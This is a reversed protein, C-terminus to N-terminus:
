VCTQVCTHTCAQLGHLAAERAAGVDALHDLQEELEAVREENGQVSRNPLSREILCQFMGDFTRDFM